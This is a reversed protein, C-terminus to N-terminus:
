LSSLRQISHEGTLSAFYITEFIKKNLEKAADSDFPMRMMIFVDALGQVGVGIPRHRM